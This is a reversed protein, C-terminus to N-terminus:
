GIPEADRGTVETLSVRLIVDRYGVPDDETFAEPILRRLVEVAHTLSEEDSVEDSVIQVTGRVVVSRWRFLADVEDVEFAVWPNHKLHAVKSGQATRLYLFDNDLVYHIPEIDVRDHLSYAIRGVRNRALIEVCEERHLERIYPVRDTM